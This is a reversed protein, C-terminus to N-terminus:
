AATDATPADTIGYSDKVAKLDYTNVQSMVGLVRAIYQGVQSNASLSEAQLTTLAKTFDTVLTDAKVVLAKETSQVLEYADQIQQKTAM